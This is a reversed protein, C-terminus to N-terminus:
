KSINIYYGLGDEQAVTFTEEQSFVNLHAPLPVTFRFKGQLGYQADLGKVYPALAQYDRALAYDTLTAEIQAIEAPSAQQRIAEPLHVTRIVPTAAPQNYQDILYGVIAAVATTGLAAAYYWHKRKKSGPKGFFTKDDLEDQHDHDVSTKEEFLSEIMEPAPTAASLAPTGSLLILAFLLKKM